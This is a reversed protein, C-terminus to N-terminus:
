RAAPTTPPRPSRLRHLLSNIADTLMTALWCVSRAALLAHNPRSVASATRARTGSCRTPVPVDHPSWGSRALCRPVICM